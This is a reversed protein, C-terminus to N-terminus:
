SQLAVDDATLMYGENRVTKILGAPLQSRLRSVL